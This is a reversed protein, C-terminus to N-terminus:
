LAAEIQSKTKARDLKSSENLPFEDVFVIKDPALKLAFERMLLDQALGLFEERDRPSIVALGLDEGFRNDRLATAVVSALGNAHFVKEIAELSFKQGGRNLTLDLRGAFTWGGTQNAAVADRVVVSTPYEILGNQIIARCLSAGSISVGEASVEADISSLKSGIEDDTLPALGPPLHSIGPAAETCGYGISPAEIKLVDQVAHWLSRSVGAGGIICSYSPAIASGQRVLEALDFFHTPTGLTILNAPKLALREYHSARRYKGAPTHLTWGFEHAAVYGLTLGFTHFAQPYCFVHGIRSKDFLGYIGDLAARVNEKSYLVLRPFASMTGSTFVGLVPKFPLSTPGQYSSSHVGCLNPLAAREFESWHGRLILEDVPLARLFSFDKLMPPCLVLLDESDWAHAVLRAPEEGHYGKWLTLKM